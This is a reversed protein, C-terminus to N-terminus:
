RGRIVAGFRDILRREIGAHVRGAEEETLTRDGARYTLAYAMSKRGPPVPEGRYLDFLHATELLPAGAERIAEAIESHPTDEDVLLAIDMALGPYRPPAAIPPTAEALRALVDFDLEAVFVRQDV